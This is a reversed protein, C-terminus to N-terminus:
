PSRQRARSLLEFLGLKTAWSDLYADDLRNRQVALVGIADEWQLQSVENGLRFWELKNLVVDEPSCLYASISAKGVGLVQITRRRFQEEIWPSHKPTFVDVQFITRLDLVNFYDGNAISREAALRDVYFESELGQVLLPVNEPRVTLILDVDRTTRAMGYVISAISGGIYYDIGLMEIAAIFKRIADMADELETAKRRCM